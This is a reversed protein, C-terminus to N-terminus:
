NESRWITGDPTDEIDIGISKLEDRIEDARKFNRESRCNNRKEILREILDLDLGDSAKSYGLWDDPAHQLIGLIRASSYVISMIGVKQDENADQLSNVLINLQGLAEPTNLDDCLADVIYKSPEVQNRDLSADVKRICRYLRDLNKQAQEITKSSWNLPQRYHTSLLVMRLTEGKHDNILDNIFRINGLSKSMKDGDFKLMGNHIWYRAYSAIDNTKKHVGCCQAIENEHHPFILDQGGSHIDFPVGLTKESMASCELHWGPRGFGWPSDWGPQDKNSPKWLIFDAPDKKYPAVEVRSGAIQEEKDRGSLSGYNSFTNVSYLVHGEAEYAHGNDILAEVQKIMEAIHDTARPQIDPPSVGLEILNDNYIKEYKKTLESIPIDQEIASNIIKDDIDTINSVYTVRPYLYRLLRVLIDSVIPPRANGIHAYNYVTPGCTYVRIHNPDIPLFEEKKNNLSNYLRLRAM